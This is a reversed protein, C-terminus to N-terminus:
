VVKNTLRGIGEIEVSVVDGRKMTGVGGPTGTLIVDGPLLTMIHSILSVFHLPKFIMQDTSSIQKLNRNLSASDEPEGSQPKGGGGAELPCFTDFSKARTWQGDLRQLDRATVDNACTYGLIHERADEARIGKIKDKIM